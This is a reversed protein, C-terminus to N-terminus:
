LISQLPKPRTEDKVEPRSAGNQQVYGFLAGALMWTIPLLTANPLLDIINIGLLLVVAGVAVPTNKPSFRLWLLIIPMVLLGFEAIFGFRGLSSLAIIWQGDAVSIERGTVADYVMNRGRFGWGFLPKASAKELLIEENSFRFQLSQARDQDISMAWGLLTDVPFIGGSRLMPYSLAIAVFAISGWCFIRRPGWLVLPVLVIAYILAALSKCLILVGFLYATAVLLFLRRDPHAEKSLAAAAVTASMAFFAVWLGHPMFVIPRFGGDRMMQQFSHQFFGYVWTNIQPSLRIEVLMPISYILGGLMLIRLIDRHAQPTVLISQALFFPLIYLVRQMLVSFADYLRMGPLVDNGIPLPDTNAVATLFPSALFAALLVMLLPSRPLITAPTRMHILCGALASLASVSYKDLAPIVPLDFAAVPPLAMYGGVITWVLARELPLRAFLWLSVLPWMALAMFAFTNPM